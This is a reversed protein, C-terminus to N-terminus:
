DAYPDFLCNERVFKRIQNKIEDPIQADEIDYGSLFIPHFILCVFSAAYRSLQYHSEKYKRGFRLRMQSMSENINGHSISADRFLDEYKVTYINKASNAIATVILPQFLSMKTSDDWKSFDKLFDLKKDLIPDVSSQDSGHNVVPGKINDKEIYGM